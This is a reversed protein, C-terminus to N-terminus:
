KFRDQNFATSCAQRCNSSSISKFKHSSNSKFVTGDPQSDAKPDIQWTWADFPTGKGSFRGKQQRSVGESGFGQVETVRLSHISLLTANEHDLRLGRDFPQSSIVCAYLGADSPNVSLIRLGVGSVIPINSIGLDEVLPDSAQLIDINLYSRRGDGTWPDVLRDFRRHVWRLTHSNHVPGTFSKAAIQKAQPSLYCPLDVLGGTLIEHYFPGDFTFPAIGSRILYILGMFILLCMRFIM